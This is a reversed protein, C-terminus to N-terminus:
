VVLKHTAIYREFKHVYYAQIWRLLVSIFHSDRSLHIRTM